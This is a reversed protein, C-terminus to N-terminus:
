IIRNWKDGEKDVIKVIKQEKMQKKMRENEENVGLLKRQGVIKKM